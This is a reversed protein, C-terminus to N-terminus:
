RPAALFNLELLVGNVEEVFLQSIGAQPFDVRKPHLGVKALRAVMDDIDDCELAVHHIAGGGRAPAFPHEADGPYPTAPSGIHIIARGAPDHIWCGEEITAVGPRPRAELGLVDRFFAATGAVDATRINVHDLTRVAM